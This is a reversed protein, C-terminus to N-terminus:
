ESATLPAAPRLIPAPSISSRTRLPDGDTPAPNTELPNTPDRAELRDDCLININDQHPAVMRQPYCGYMYTVAFLTPGVIGRDYIHVKFTYTSQGPAFDALSNPIADFDKGNLASAQRVGYRIWEDVRPNTRRITIDV